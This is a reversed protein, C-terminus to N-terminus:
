SSAAVKRELQVVEPAEAGPKAVVVASALGLLLGHAVLGEVGEIEKAITGYEADEGYLKLGEYFRIDVITHGEPSVYPNDGGRPNSSTGSM